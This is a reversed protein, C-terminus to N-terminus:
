LFSVEEFDSALAFLFKTGEGMMYMSIMQNLNRYTKYSLELVWTISCGLIPYLISLDQAEKMLM